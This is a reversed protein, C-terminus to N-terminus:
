TEAIEHYRPVRAAGDTGVAISEWASSTRRYLRRDARYAENISRRIDPTLLEAKQHNKTSSNQEASSLIAAINPARRMLLAQLGISLKDLTLLKLNFEQMINARHTQPTWHAESPLDIADNLNRQIWGSLISLNYHHHRLSVPNEILRYREILIQALPVYMERGKGIIKDLYFSLFRDVPNRIVTFAVEEAQILRPDSYLESARPFQADDDHVRIPNPHFSSYKLYWLVNKVYTCGCKPISLYLIRPEEIALLRRALRQANSSNTPASQRTTRENM